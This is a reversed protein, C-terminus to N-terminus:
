RHQPDDQGERLSMERCRPESSGCPQRCLASAPGLSAQMGGKEVYAQGEGGSRVERGKGARRGWSLEGGGGRVDFGGRRRCDPVIIGRDRREGCSPTGERGKRWTGWVRRVRGLGRADM